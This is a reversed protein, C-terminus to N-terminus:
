PLVGETWGSTIAVAIDHWQACTVFHRGTTTGRVCGGTVRVRAYSGGTSLDSGDAAPLADSTAAM